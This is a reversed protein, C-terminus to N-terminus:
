LDNEDTKEDEDWEIKFDEQSGAPVRDEITSEKRDDWDIKFNDSDPVKVDPDYKKRTISFAKRRDFKVDFDAPTGAIILPVTTQDERNEIVLFEDMEKKKKRAKNFLVESLLVNLRYDFVNDFSHSGSVSINFASSHIAMEPVTVLRDQIYIVNKLTKFRILRLEDVNIYKSLKLMPEFQVLEGDTIELDGKAILSGPQFRLTSDWRAFFSINGDLSGKVNKDVIFKQTFNNFSTFLHQINIHKPESNCTISLMHDRNQSIIADGSITGDPFKLVFSPLFASDGKLILSAFADTASFKGAEFVGAHIKAKLNMREPILIVRKSRRAPFNGPQYHLFSNLSFNNTTVVLDSRLIGKEILYGNLNQVRGDVLIDNDNIRVKLNDVTIFEHLTVKGTINELTLDPNKVKVTANQFVFTGSKLYNLLTIMSDPRILGLKGDAAFAAQVMGGIQKGDKLGIFDQLAEMDLESSIDAHLNLERLNSIQLSGNMSGRGLTSTFHYLILRFSASNTGTVVGKMSVHGVSTKTRVNRASCDTLNFESSIQLKDPNTVPGKVTAKLSGGGTFHYRKFLSDNRLPFLSIAEGLGFKPVSLSIDIHKEKTGGYEGTLNIEARNIKLIGQQIRFRDDSSLLRIQMELDANNMWTKNRILLSTGSFIGRANGSLVHNAYTGRFNTKGAFATLKIKKKLDICRILMDSVTISQLKLSYSEQGAVNEDKWVHLNHIGKNDFLINAFGGSIEIKKLEYNKHFLMILDFRFSIKRAKLLTDAFTGSFDQASFQDGALVAVHNIEVTANPFGKLASFHINDMSIQTLLHEDLYKKMYRIVAKEYFLSVIASTVAILTFTALLAIIFIRFSRNIVIRM